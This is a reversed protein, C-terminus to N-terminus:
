IITFLVTTEQTLLKGGLGNHYRRSFSDKHDSNVMLNFKLSSIQFNYIIVHIIIFLYSYFNNIIIIKVFKKQYFNTVHVTFLITVSYLLIAFPSRVSTENLM